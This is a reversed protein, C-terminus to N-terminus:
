KGSRGIAAMQTFLTEDPALNAQEAQRTLFTCAQQTDLLDEQLTIFTMDSLQEQIFRLPKEAARPLWLISLVQQRHEGAAECLATLIETQSDAYEDADEDKCTCRVGVAGGACSRFLKPYPEEGGHPRTDSRLLTFRRSQLRDNQLLAALLTDAIGDFVARSDARVIYHVPHGSVDCSRGQFIRELEEGLSHVCHLEETRQHLINKEAPAIVRESMGVRIQTNHNMVMELGDHRFLTSVDDDSVIFNNRDAVRLRADLERATIENFHPGTCELGMHLLFDQLLADTMAGSRMAGSRLVGGMSLKDGKASCVFLYCERNWAQYFEEFRPMLELAFAEEGGEPPGTFEAEMRYYLMRM